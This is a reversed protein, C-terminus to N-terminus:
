ALVIQPLITTNIVYHKDRRIDFVFHTYISM